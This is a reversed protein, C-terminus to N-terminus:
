GGVDRRRGRHRPTKTTLKEPLDNRLYLQAGNEALLPRYRDAMADRIWGALEAGASATLVVQEPPDRVFAARISDALHPDTVVRKTSLVALAPPVMYGARFAYMPDNAVVFRTVPAFARMTALVREPAGALPTAPRRAGFVAWLALAGLLAVAAIRLTILTRASVRAASADRRFLEAVAIGGAACHPVTLLLQHHYWVPAHSLLLAAAVGAWLAFAAALRLRWYLTLAYGGLGALTLPWEEYATLALSRWGFRSLSPASRAALHTDVLAELQRPGVMLLLLVAAAMATCVLWQAAPWWARRSPSRPGVLALWLAFPVLLLATALKCALACGMLAGAAAIWARRAGCQWQFLAWLALVALALAPLGLMLSVSLRIFYASAALMVCAIVAAGHGAALRTMDYLAFVSVAAFLLVLMRGTDVDWGLVAFWLRLLHTFLPPQDSWIQTYLTYGRDVLLAKIANIGEDPDFAFVGRYPHLVVVLAAYLGAAALACGIAGARAQLQQRAANAEGRKAAAADGGASRPTTAPPAAPM